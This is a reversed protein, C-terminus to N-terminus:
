PVPLVVRVIAPFPVVGVPAITAKALVSDRVQPPAGVSASRLDAALVYVSLTDSTQDVPPMGLVRSLRIRFEGASDTTGGRSDFVNPKALPRLGVYIGRLPQGRAGVVQGQVEFCGTNGFEYTQQCADPDGKDNGTLDRCAALLTM